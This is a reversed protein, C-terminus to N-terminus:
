QSGMLEELLTDQDVITDDVAEIILDVIRGTFTFPVQYHDDVPTQSDRGVEFPENCFSVQRFPNLTGAGAEEDDMFFRATGEDVDTKVVDVRLTVNGSPIAKSSWV